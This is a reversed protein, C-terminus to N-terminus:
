VRKRIEDVADGAGEALRDLEGRLQRKRRAFERRADRQLGRLEDEAQDRLRSWGRRVRRRTEVGSRPAALLAVGAGILAGLIVGAVFGSGRKGRGPAPRDLEEDSTLDDDMVM